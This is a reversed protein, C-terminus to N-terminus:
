KVTSGPASQGRKLLDLNGDLVDVVEAGTALRKRTADRIFTGAPGQLDYTRIVKPKPEPAGANVLSRLWGTANEKARKISRDRVEVSRGSPTHTVRVKHRNDYIM